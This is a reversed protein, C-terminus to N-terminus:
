IESFIKHFKKRTGQAVTNSIACPVRHAMIIPVNYSLHAQMNPACRRIVHFDGLLNDTSPPFRFYTSSFVVAFNFFLFFVRDGTDGYDFSVADMKSAGKKRM